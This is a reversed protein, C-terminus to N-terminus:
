RETTIEESPVRVRYRKGRKNVLQNARIWQNYMKLLKFNTNHSKAFQSWNSISGTVEVEKYSLPQYLDDKELFFGYLTPNELITKFAVIRYIYRETEAIWQMDYFCEESQIDMRYHVNKFGTNYSAAALTWSGFEEKAKKLYAAAARTSLEINYREDVESDVVLGYERATGALFQWYGAARAPSVVPQLGSEAVALYFLDEPVGEEKLISKIEEGYRSSLQMIYINSGHFYSLSTLERQFAEKVDSRELPMREGCFDAELPTPAIRVAQSFSDSREWLLGREASRGGRCGMTLPLLLLLVKIIKKNIM